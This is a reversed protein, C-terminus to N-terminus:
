GSAAPDSGARRAAAADVLQEQRLALGVLQCAVALLRVLAADLPAREGFLILLAGLTEGACAVPAALLALTGPAGFAAAAGATDLWGPSGARMLAALDPHAAVTVMEPGLRGRTSRGLVIQGAMHPALAADIAGLRQVLIETAEILAAVSTRARFVDALAAATALMADAGAARKASTDLRRELDAVAVRLEQAAGAELDAVALLPTGGAPEALPLLLAPVDGGDEEPWPPRSGAVADGARGAFARRLEGAADAPLEAGAAPAVQRAAANAYAVRLPEPGSLVVVPQHLKEVLEALASPPPAAPAAAAGTRARAIADPVAAGAEVAQRVAVVAAADAVAYRRSGGSAREPAPFAHRREWTRLRERSVGTLRAFETAGVTPGDGSVGPLNVLPAGRRARGTAGGLPM